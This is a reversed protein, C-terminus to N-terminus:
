KINLRNRLISIVELEILQELENIESITEDRLKLSINEIKLFELKDIYSSLMQAQEHSVKDRDKRKAWPEDLLGFDGDYKDYIDLIGKTVIKEM